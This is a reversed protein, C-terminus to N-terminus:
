PSSTHSCPPRAFLTVRFGAPARIEGLLGDDGSRRLPQPLAAARAPAPVKQTGHVQVEFISAWAGPQLSTATVRVYRVGRALFEHTRDQDRSDTKTQDSLMTWDKGDESGEVKYRYNVGDREWVIRIGTLDQAKGLDM